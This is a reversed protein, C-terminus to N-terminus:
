NGTQAVRPVGPARELIAEIRAREKEFEVLIPGELVRGRPLRIRMPDVHTGNILVEYHLHPGASLGSSGIYGIIQGQRVKAGEQIGRAYASLHSYTTVYGNLHQIEIRRGYGSDWEAKIVVGNGAAFIPAGTDDAWDVGLHMRTYGLLPHRRPGFQSRFIGGALPKRVLFKKASKGTEDYFDVVGDDTTHFRFYRHPEGGVSISALLVETHTESEDGAYLVEFSDGPRVRRQLDVDFSYIRILGEIIPRPIDNKLGTEYISQYLRMGRSEDEDEAEETPTKAVNFDRPEEVSVYRGNDALAITGEHAKDSFLSVRLPITLNGEGGGLLVRVRFGEKIAGERVKAGFAAILPRIMQPSAGLDRLISGLTEGKKVVVTRETWATGGTTEAATKQVISMNEAIAALADPGIRLTSDNAYALRGNVMSLGTRTLTTPLRISGTAPDIAEVLRAQVEQLPLAAALRQNAPVANLDRMVITLEGTSEIQPEQEQEIGADAVLKQPNFPPITTALNSPVLVLNSAVRIFPRVRVIEREGVRTITSVPITHRASTSEALLSIRDAKRPANPARETASRIVLRALEPLTAFRYEGDLAAWVAGGMLGGGALAVLVTAALWRISVRRRDIPEEVDGDLGLPPENGLDLIGGPGQPGRSAARHWSELSHVGAGRGVASSREGGKRSNASKAGPGTRARSVSWAARPSSADILRSGCGPASFHCFILRIERGSQVPVRM